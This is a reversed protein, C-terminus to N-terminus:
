APPPYRRLGERVGRFIAVGVAVDYTRRCWSEPAIRDSARSVARILAPGPWTALTRKLLKKAILPPPDARWDVPSSERVLRARPSEEGYKRWLRVDSISYLRQRECFRELDVAWDNHVVVIGPHYLIHAGRRRARLGLDWDEGSAITFGEDFGGLAQFDSREVSLNAATLAVTETIGAGGQSRHFAEWLWDRYRGFPTQRLEPPHIVRGVIWAGPHAAHAQLHLTLFDAPVSVDDDIFVLVRGRAAAAGRNRAAAPGANAQRLVQFPPGLGAVAEGTGDSSGDDVVIAEWGGQLHDQRALTELTALLQARRNFTPIVVTADM